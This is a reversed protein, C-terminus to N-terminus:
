LVCMIHGGMVDGVEEWVNGLSRLGGGGIGSDWSWGGQGGQMSLCVLTCEWRLAKASAPTEAQLARGWTDAHSEQEGGESRQKVTEETLGEKVAEMM